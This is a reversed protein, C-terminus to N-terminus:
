ALEYTQQIHRFGLKKFMLASRENLPSINALLRKGKNQEILLKVALGGYGRGQWHEFIFIGIERDKTLYCAGVCEKDPDLVLNWVPYPKSMFFAMHEAETPMAKHSISVEPAREMLLSYLQLPADLTEYADVLTVNM